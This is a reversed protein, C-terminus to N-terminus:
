PSTWPLAAKGCGLGRTHRSADHAARHDSSRGCPGVPLLSNLGERTLRLLFFVGTGVSAQVFLVRWGLASLLLQVLHLAVVAPVTWLARVADAGAAVLNGWVGAILWGASALVGLAIAGGLLRRALGRAQAPAGKVM